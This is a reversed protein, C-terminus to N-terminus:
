AAGITRSAWAVLQWLAFLVAAIVALTVLLIAALVAGSARRAPGPRELWREVLRVNRVNAKWGADFVDGAIPIAGVLAEVGINVGMRALVSYPAGLRWAVVVLWMSLLAGLADGVGPVLGLLPDIGIRYSTGPIPISEDLLRALWRAGALRADRDGRDRRSALPPAHGPRLADDM